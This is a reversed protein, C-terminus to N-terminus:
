YINNSNKKLLDILTQIINHIRKIELESKEIINQYMNIGEYEDISNMELLYFKDKM